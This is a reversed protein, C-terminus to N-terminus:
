GNKKEEEPKKRYKIIGIISSAIVVSEYVIGGVSMECIDYLLVLPSSVLISKRVNQPNKLSVCVTNIVLGAIVLLSHVGNWSIFGMIGMVVAFFIPCYRSAFIKFRDSNYYATNRVVGVMNMAFAPIAGILLYHIGFVACTILHVILLQKSNKVQYTVFGLIVAIIGLIQGTIEATETM